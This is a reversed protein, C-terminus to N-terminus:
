ILENRDEASYKLEILEMLEMPEMRANTWSIWSAQMTVRTWNSWNRVVLENLEISERAAHVLCALNVLQVFESVYGINKPQSGM